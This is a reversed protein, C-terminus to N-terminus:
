QISRNAVVSVASRKVARWVKNKATNMWPKLTSESLPWWVRWMWLRTSGLSSHLSGAPECDTCGGMTQGEGVDWATLEAAVRWQESGVLHFVSSTDQCFHVSQYPEGHIEGKLGDENWADSSLPANFSAAQSSNSFKLKKKLGGKCGQLYEPM